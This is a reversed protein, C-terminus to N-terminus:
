KSIKEKASAGLHESNKAINLFEETTRAPAPIKHVDSIYERVAASTHFAFDSDSRALSAAKIRLLAKELPTEPKRKGLRAKVIGALAIIAIAAAALWPWYQQWFTPEIKGAIADIEEFVGNM